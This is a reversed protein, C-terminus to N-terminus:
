SGLGVFLERDQHEVYDTIDMTSTFKYEVTAQIFGGSGVGPLGFGAEGDPMGAFDFGILGLTRM